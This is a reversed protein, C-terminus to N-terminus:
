KEKVRLVEITKHKVNSDNWKDSKITRGFRTNRGAEVIKGHGIYMVVHQGSTKKYRIIDGPQLESVKVKRGKIVKKFHDGVKPFSSRVGALARFHKDIGTTRVITNIFFGCDSMQSKTKYGCKHMAEKCVTKPRGTKYDYKKPNTGYAWALEIGKEVLKEAKTKKKTPTPKVEKPKESGFVKEDCWEQLAKVSKPGFDGDQTIGLMKQVKKSTNKGWAGDPDAGCKKQLAKVTKKGLIGDVKVGLAKQLMAISNYGFKGDISLKKSIDYEAPYHLRYVGLVYKEPRIKNAVIGGNTNGEHTKVEATSKRKRVFGIHDPVNNFNWDFFIVDMPMALYLPIQALKAKCWMYATPCYTVKKGGYFLKDCGGKHEIFCVYACCYPQGASLGCYARAAAGNTGLYRKAIEYLQKNKTM